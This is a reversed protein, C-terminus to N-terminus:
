MVILSGVRESVHERRPLPEYDAAPAAMVSAM